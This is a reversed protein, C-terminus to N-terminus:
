SLLGAVVMVLGLVVLAAGWYEMKIWFLSHRPKVEVREGSQEDLLVKGPRRNLRLGAAATLAGGVLVGLGGWLSSNSEYTGPGGLGNLLAQAALLGGFGFVVALVGWGQWVIM